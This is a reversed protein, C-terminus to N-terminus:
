LDNKFVDFLSLFKSFHDQLTTEFLFVDEKLFSIAKLDFVETLYKNKNTTNLNPKFFSFISSPIHIMNM